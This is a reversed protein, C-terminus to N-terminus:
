HSSAYFRGYNGQWRHYNRRLHVAWSVAHFTRGFYENTVSQLDRIVFCSRFVGGCLKVAITKEYGCYTCVCLKKDGGKQYRKLETKATESEAQATSMGNQLEVISNGYLKMVANVQEDTLDLAKLEERKM